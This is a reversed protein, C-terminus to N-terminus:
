EVYFDVENDETFDIEIEELFISRVIPEIIENNCGSENMLEVCEEYTFGCNKIIHEILSTERFFAIETIVLWIGSNLYKEKLANKKETNKFIEKTDSKNM